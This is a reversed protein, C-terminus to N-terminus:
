VIKAVQKLADKWNTFRIGRDDIYAIAALKRNSLGVLHKNEYFTRDDSIIETGIDTHVGFWNQVQKLDRTTFVFVTYVKMLTKIAEIAGDIPEDYATGDHWGKSYKHIVGDFDIAITQM